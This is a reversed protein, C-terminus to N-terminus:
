SHLKFSSTIGNAADYVSSNNVCRYLVSFHLEFFPLRSLICYCRRTTLIHRSLSLRCPQRDSIMCILGSPNQIIEEVLVCCGYLTSDDAVQMGFFLTIFQIGFTLSLVLFMFDWRQLETLMIDDERM